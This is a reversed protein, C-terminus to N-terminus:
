ETVVFRVSRDTEGALLNLVYMGQQIDVLDIRGSITRGTQLVRGNLDTIRYDMDENYTSLQLYRQAPQPYVVVDTLANEDLGIGGFQGFFVFPIIDDTILVGDISGEVKSVSVIDHSFPIAVDQLMPLTATGSDVALEMSAFPQTFAMPAPLVFRLAQDGKRVGNVSVVAGNDDTLTMRINGTKGSVVGGPILIEEVAYPSASTGVNLNVRYTSQDNMVTFQDTRVPTSMMRVGMTSDPAVIISDSLGFCAPTWGAVHYLGPATVTVITDNMAFPVYYYLFAHHTFSGPNTLEIQDPQPQSVMPTQPQDVEVTYMGAPVGDAYVIYTTPVSPSAQTAATNVSSLGTAPQWSYTSGSVPSALNVHGGSCILFTDVALATDPITIRFMKGNSGAKPCGNDTMHVSFSYVGPTATAPIVWDFNVNNTVSSTLATQPSAPTFTARPLHAAGQISATIEQPLFDPTLDGDFSQVGVSVTDGPYASITYLTSDNTQWAGQNIIDLSPPDNTFGPIYHISASLDLQVTSILQGGVDVQEAEFAFAYWGTNSTNARFHGNPHYYDSSNVPHMYTHGTSYTVPTSAASLPQSINVSYADHSPTIVPLLFSIGSVNFNDFLSFRVSSRNIGVPYMRSHVYFGPTGQLNETASRCCESYSIELPGNQPAPITVTSEYHWVRLYGSANCVGPIISSNQYNLTVGTSGIYVTKTPSPTLSSTGDILIDMQLVYQDNGLADWYIQGGMMDAASLMLANLAFALSLFRKM